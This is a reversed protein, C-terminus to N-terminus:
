STIKSLRIYKRFAKSKWRGLLMIEQESKGSIVAQTCAGIRISHFKYYKPSLNVFHLLKMFHTKFKGLTLSSNNALIFLPGKSNGRLSLYSKLYTVPCFSKSSPIIISCPTSTKKTKHRHLRIHVSKKKFEVHKLQVVQHDKSSKSPLLEGMRFFGHFSILLIAQCLQRLFPNTAFVFATAKCLKKIDEYLLPKRCDSKSNTKHAGLVMRRVIFSNCPDPNTTLQHQYAIASLHSSITSPSYKLLHLHAVFSAVTDSTAPLYSRSEPMNSVFVTFRSWFRKYSLRTSPALSATILHTKMAAISTPEDPNTITATNQESTPSLDTSRSGDAKNKDKNGLLEGIESLIEDDKSIADALLVALRSQKNGTNQDQVAKRKGTGATKPNKKPM